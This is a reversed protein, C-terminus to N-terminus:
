RGGDKRELAVLARRTFPADESIGVGSVRMEIRAVLTWDPWTAIDNVAHIGPGHEVSAEAVILTRTLGALRAVCARDVRAWGLFGLLVLADLRHPPAVTEIPARVQRVVCARGKWTFARLDRADPDVATITRQTGDLFLAVPNAGCGVELVHECGYEAILAAAIAQRSRLGPTDLMPYAVGSM